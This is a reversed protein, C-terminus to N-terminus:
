RGDTHHDDKADQENGTRKAPEVPITMVFLLGECRSCERGRHANTGSEGDRLLGGGRRGHRRRCEAPRDWGNAPRGSGPAAGTETGSHREEAIAKSVMQLRCVFISEVIFELTRMYIQCQVGQGNKNRIRIKGPRFLMCILRVASVPLGVPARSRWGMYAQVASRMIPLSPEDTSTIPFTRGHGQGSRIVQLSHNVYRVGCPRGGPM